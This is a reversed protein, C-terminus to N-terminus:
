QALRFLEILSDDPNLPGIRVRHLPPGHAQAVESVRVPRDTLRRLEAALTEARSRESYAGVQLFRNGNDEIPLTELPLHALAPPLGELAPPWSPNEVRFGHTRLVDILELLADESPVPGIRVRHLPVGGLDETDSINVSRGTLGAILAAMTEANSAEAYAGFQLLPLGNETVVVVGTQSSPPSAAASANAHSAPPGSDHPRASNSSLAATENPAAVGPDDPAPAVSHPARHATEASAGLSAAPEGAPEQNVAASDEVARPPKERQGPSARGEHVPVRLAESQRGTSPGAGATPDVSSSSPRDSLEELAAPTSGEPPRGSEHPKDGAPDTPNGLSGSPHIRTEEDPRSASIALAAGNSRPPGPETSEAASLGPSTASLDPRSNAFRSRRSEAASLGPSTASRHPYPVADDRKTAPAGTNVSEPSPEEPPSFEGLMALARDLNAEFRQEEPAHLVAQEMAAAAGRLDGELLLALGVGNHAWAVTARAANEGPDTLRVFSEKAAELRGAALAARGHALLAAHRDDAQESRTLASLYWRAAAAPDRDKLAVDGLGMRAPVSEPDVDLLRRYLRRATELQGAELATAAMPQVANEMQQARLHESTPPM